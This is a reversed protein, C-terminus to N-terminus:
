YIIEGTGVDTINGETDFRIGVGREEEWDCDFYLGAVIKSKLPRILLEKPVVAQALQSADEIALYSCEMEEAMEKVETDYYNKLAQEIKIAHNNITDLCAKGVMIMEDTLGEIGYHFVDFRIDIKYRRSFLEVEKKTIFYGRYKSQSFELVGIETIKQEM